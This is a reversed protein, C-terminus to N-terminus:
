GKKILQTILALNAEKLGFLFNVGIEFPLDNNDKNYYPNDLLVRWTDIVYPTKHDLDQLYMLSQGHPVLINFPCGPALVRGVEKIIRIPNALHELFHTAFVGGVSDEGYPLPTNEADWDPWELEKTSVIHKNGPGLNLIPLSEDSRVWLPLNRDLGYQAFGIPGDIGRLFFESMLARM